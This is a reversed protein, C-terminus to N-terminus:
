AGETKMEAEYAEKAINLYKILARYELYGLQKGTKHGLADILRDIQEINSRRARNTCCLM